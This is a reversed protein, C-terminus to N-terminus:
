LIFLFDFSLDFILLIDSVQLKRLTWKYTWVQQLKNCGAYSYILHAEVDISRNKHAVRLM